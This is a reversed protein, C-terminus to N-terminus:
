GAEEAQMGIFGQLSGGATKQAVAFVNDGARLMPGAFAAPIFVLAYGLRFPSRLLAKLGGFTYGIPIREDQIDSVKFGTLELLRTLTKKSFQFLHRPPEPHPWHNLLNAVKYSLAPFLGDINPTAIAVIGDPKLIQNIIFLTKKPDDLHEIVDWLTVVDFHNAPFLSERLTGVTVELGYWKEALAATDESLELGQAEWGQDRAVKLFFGASCGIDLLRGRKKYRDIFRYYGRAERLYTRCAQDNDRFEVHYGSKFSYLRKLEERSPQNQVYVLDCHGCQALVFGKKVFLARASHRDCINCSVRVFHPPLPRNAEAFGPALTLSM